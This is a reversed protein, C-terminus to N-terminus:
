YSTTSLTGSSYGKRLLDYFDESLTLTSITCVNQVEPRDGANLDRRLDDPTEIDVPFRSPTDANLHTRGARHVIRTKEKWRELELAWSLLRQNDTKSNSAQFLWTLASHDTYITLTHGEIIEQFRRLAWVLAGMELETPWYNKEAKNLTRSIFAVPREERKPIEIGQVPDTMVNTVDSVKINHNPPDQETAIPTAQMATDANSPLIVHLAAGFGIKCADTYLAYEVTEDELAHSLYTATKLAEKIKNFAAEQEQGWAISLSMKEQLHQARNKSQDPVVKTGVKPSLLDTIPKVIQSYNRVFDRYYGFFGLIQMTERVTNPQKLKMMAEIKSPQMALGFKNVLHGLLEISKFGVFAKGADLTLGVHHLETLLWTVHAVHEEWSRSFVIADDIYVIIATWKYPKIIRDIIRQCHAPSNVYGMLSRTLRKTGAHKTVFTTLDRDEEAIPFQFFAKKLDFLSMYEANQLRPFIDKQRPLPYVDQQTMSNIKRLDVVFRPKGKQVVILAPSCYKSAHSDEVIGQSELEQMIKDYAQRKPLSMDYPKQIASANKFETKLPMPITEGTNLCGIGEWLPISELVTKMQDRQQITLAKSFKWKDEIYDDRQVLEPKDSQATIDDLSLGTSATDDLSFPDTDLNQTFESM